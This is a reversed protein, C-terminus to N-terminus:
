PCLSRQAWPLAAMMMCAEEAVQQVACARCLRGLRGELLATAAGNLCAAVWCCSRLLTLVLARFKKGPMAADRAM